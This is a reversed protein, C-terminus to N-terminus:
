GIRVLFELPLAVANAFTTETFTENHTIDVTGTADVWTITPGTVVKKLVVTHPYYGLDHTITTSNGPGPFAALALTENLRLKGVKEFQFIVKKLLDSSM